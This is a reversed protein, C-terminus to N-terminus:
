ASAPASSVCPAATCIAIVRGPCSPVAEKVASAPCFTDSPTVDVPKAEYTEKRSYAGSPLLTSLKM